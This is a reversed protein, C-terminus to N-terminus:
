IKQIWEMFEAANRDLISHAKIWAQNPQVFTSKLQQLNNMANQLVTSLHSSSFPEVFLANEGDSLLEENAPIRNVVPIAGAYRGEALSASYGDYIPASIFIDVLNWLQSVTERPLVEEVFNFNPYAKMMQKAKERLSSSVEYGASLLIFKWGPTSKKLLREFSELIIDAQYIAKAGRPSLIVKQGSQIGFKERLQTLATPSAELLAPEVGWRLLRSKEKPVGFWSRMCDVLYQNDGTIIDAAKLASAVQKKFYPNLISAKLANLGYKKGEINAWSRQALLTNKEKRPPYELIDAGFASLVLPRAGSKAGWVGFPTVNLANVLDIKHAKLAHSLSEGGYVYSLYSYPKGLRFTPKLQVAQLEKGRYTDFSFVVVEAGQKMLAGAWKQTHFNNPDSLIAIKM